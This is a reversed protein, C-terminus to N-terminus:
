AERVCRSDAFTPAAEDQYLLEDLDVSAAMKPQGLYRECQRLRDYGLMIGLIFDEEPTYESLSPKGIRRIVDVCARAGFFVNIRGNRLPYIEYAIDNKRLKREMEPQHVGSTTHLILNRLGKRYEYLHHVFVRM